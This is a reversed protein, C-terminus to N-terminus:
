AYHGTATDVPARSESDIVIAAALLACSVVLTTASNTGPDLVPLQITGSRGFRTIDEQVQREKGDEIRWGETWGNGYLMLTVRESPV